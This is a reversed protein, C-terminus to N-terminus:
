TKQTATQTTAHGGLGQEWQEILKAETDIWIQTKRWRSLTCPNIDLLIAIEGFSDGYFHLRCAQIIKKPNLVRPM